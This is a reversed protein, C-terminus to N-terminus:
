ARTPPLNDEAMRARIWALIEAQRLTLEDM